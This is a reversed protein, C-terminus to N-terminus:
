TEFSIFICLLHFSYKQLVQSVKRFSYSSSIWMKPLESDRFSKHHKKLEDILESKYEECVERYSGVIKSDYTLLVPIRLKKYADDLSTREDILRKLKDSTGMIFRNQEHYFLFESRLYDRDTHAQLEVLVDRIANSINNYFKVEGLWLELDQGDPVIHVADVGKVTEKPGDKYYM